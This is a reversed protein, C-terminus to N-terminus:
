HTKISNRRFTSPVYQHHHLDPGHGSFAPIWHDPKWPCGMLPCAWLFPIEVPAWQTTASQMHCVLASWLECENRVETVRTLAEWPGLRRWATNEKGIPFRRNGGIKVSVAVLRYGMGATFKSFNRGFKFNEFINSIFLFFYLLFTSIVYMMRIYFMNLYKVTQASLFIFFSESWYDRATNPTKRASIPANPGSVV